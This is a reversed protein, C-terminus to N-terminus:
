NKIIAEKYESNEITRSMYDKIIDLLLYYSHNMLHSDYKTMLTYRIEQDLEASTM